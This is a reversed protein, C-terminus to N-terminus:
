CDSCKDMRETEEGERERNGERQKGDDRKRQYIFMTSLLQLVSNSKPLFSLFFCYLVGYQLFFVLGAVVFYGLTIFFLLLVDISSDKQARSSQIHGYDFMGILIEQKGETAMSTSLVPLAVQFFIDVYYHIFQNM